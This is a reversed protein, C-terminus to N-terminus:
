RDFAFKRFRYPNSLQFKACIINIHGDLVTHVWKEFIVIKVGRPTWLSLFKASFTYKYPGMEKNHRFLPFKLNKFFDFDSKHPKIVQCYM